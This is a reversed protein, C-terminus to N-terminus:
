LASRIKNQMELAIMEAPGVHLRGKGDTQTASFRVTDGGVLTAICYTVVGKAIKATSPCTVSQVQVGAQKTLVDRIANEAKTRDWSVTGCGALAAVAAIAPLCRALRKSM